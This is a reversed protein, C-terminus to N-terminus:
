SRSWTKFMTLGDFQWQPVTSVLPKKSSILSEGRKSLSSVYPDSQPFDVNLVSLEAQNSIRISSAFLDLEVELWLTSLMKFFGKMM